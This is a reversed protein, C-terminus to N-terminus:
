GNENGRDSEINTNVAPGAAESQGPEVSLRAWELAVRGGPRLKVNAPNRGALDTIVGTRAKQMERDRTPPLIRM